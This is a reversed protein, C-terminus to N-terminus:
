AGAERALTLFEVTTPQVKGRLAAADAALRERLPELLATRVRERAHPSQLLADALAALEAKRHARGQVYAIGVAGGALRLVCRTVTM